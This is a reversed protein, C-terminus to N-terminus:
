KDPEKTPEKNEGAPPSLLRGGAKVYEEKLIPEKKLLELYKEKMGEVGMNPQRQELTIIQKVAEQIFKPKNEKVAFKFICHVWHYYADYYMERVKNDKEVLPRLEKMFTNWSLVAGTRTGYKGQDELLLIREKRADLNK